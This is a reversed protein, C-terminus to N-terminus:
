DQRHDKCLFSLFEILSRHINKARIEKEAEFKVLKSRFQFFICTIEFLIPVLCSKIKVAVSFMENDSLESKYNKKGTQNKPM